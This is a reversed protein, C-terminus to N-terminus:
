KERLKEPKVILTSEDKELIIVKKNAEITFDSKAHWLEGKFRVYGPKFPSIEDVTKAKEGIFVGVKTKKRRIIVVKYL